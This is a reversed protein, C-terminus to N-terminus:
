LVTPCHPLPWNTSSLINSSLINSSLINSSLQAIHYLVNVGDPNFHPGAGKCADSLNGFQHVHFGHLGDPFVEAVAGTIVLSSNEDNQYLFLEGSQIWYYLIKIKQM